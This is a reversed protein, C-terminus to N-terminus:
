GKIQSGPPYFRMTGDRGVFGQMPKGSRQYLHVDLKGAIADEFIAGIVSGAAVRMKENGAYDENIYKHITAYECARDCDYVAIIVANEKHFLQFRGEREGLFRVTIMPTAVSGAIKDSASLAKEYSYEFGDKISYRHAPLKILQPAHAPPAPLDLRAVQAPQNAVGPKNLLYMGLAAATAWGLVAIKIWSSRSSNM